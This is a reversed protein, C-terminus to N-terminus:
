GLGVGDPFPFYWFRLFLDQLPDTSDVSAREVVIARISPVVNEGLAPM